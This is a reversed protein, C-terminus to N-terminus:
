TTELAILHQRVLRAVENMRAESVREAESAGLYKFINVGIYDVPQDAMRPIVHFHVHHHGQAEAFQAVYTKSCGVTERLAISVRRLLRGLDVAEVDTMQDIAAIHRNCIVPLWGALTSNFSHVVTWCASQYINDWLPSTGNTRRTMLECTICQDM